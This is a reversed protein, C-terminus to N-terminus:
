SESNASNNNEHLNPQELAKGLQIVHVHLNMHRQFNYLSFSTRGTAKNVSSSISLSKQCTPCKVHCCLEGDVEDVIVQELSIDERM